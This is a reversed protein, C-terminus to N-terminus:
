NTHSDERLSLDRMQTFLPSLEIQPIVEFPQLLGLGKPCRLLSLPKM